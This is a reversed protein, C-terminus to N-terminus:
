GHTSSEIIESCVMAEGDSACKECIINKRDQPDKFELLFQILSVLDALVNECSYKERFGPAAQKVKEYETEWNAEAYRLLEVLHDEDIVPYTGLRITSMKEKRRVM